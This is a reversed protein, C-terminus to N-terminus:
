FFNYSLELSPNLFNHVKIGSGCTLAKGMEPEITFTGLAGSNGASSKAQVMFGAIPDGNESNLVLRLKNGEQVRQLAPALVYPSASM